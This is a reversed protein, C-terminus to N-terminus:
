KQQKTAPPWTERRCMQTPHTNLFQGGTTAKLTHQKRSFGRSDARKALISKATTAHACGLDAKDECHKTDAQTHNLLRTQRDNKKKNYSKTGRNKEM